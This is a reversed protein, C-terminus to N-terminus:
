VTSLPRKSYNFRFHRLVLLSYTFLLTKLVRLQHVHLEDTCPHACLTLQSEWDCNFGELQMYTTQLCCRPATVVTKVSTM